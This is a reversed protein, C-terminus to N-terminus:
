LLDDKKVTYINLLTRFLGKYDLGRGVVFDDSNIEFGYFDPKVKSTPKYLMSAVKISKPNFKRFNEKLFLVTNGTDVIDEVILINSDYYEPRDQMDLDLVINGSSQLKDGYSSVKVFEVHCDRIISKTLDSAFMYAGKLVVIIVLKGDDPYTNTIDLGLQDIRKNIEENKILVKM